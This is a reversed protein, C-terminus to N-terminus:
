DGQRKVITKCRVRKGDIRQRTNVVDFGMDSLVNELKGWTDIGAEETFINMASVDEVIKNKIDDGYILKEDAVWTNEIYKKLKEESDRKNFKAVSPNKEQPKRAKYYGKGLNNVVVKIRDPDSPAIDSILDLWKTKEAPNACFEEFLRRQEGFYDDYSGRYKTNVVILNDVNYRCRGVLQHINMEDPFFSVINRIDSQEIFTFGERITETAILVTVDDPLRFNQVIERRVDSMNCTIYDGGNKSALVVSKPIQKQLWYCTRSHKCMVATKGTLEENLLRVLEDTDVCMLNKAKYKYLPSAIPNVDIGCMPACEYLIHPTATLTFFLKDGKSIENCLWIQLTNMFSIFVDAFVSHVEDLVVVKVFNLASCVYSKNNTPFMLAELKDYTTIRIHECDTPPNGYRWYASVDDEPLLRVLTNYQNAQQDVALARSTVFLVEYPRVDDLKALM